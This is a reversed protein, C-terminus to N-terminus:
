IGGRPRQSFWGKQKTRLRALLSLVNNMWRVPLPDDELYYIDAEISAGLEACKEVVSPSFYIEPRYNGSFYIVHAVRVKAAALEKKFPILKDLMDELQKGFNKYVEVNVLRFGNDRVYMLSPEGKNWTKDAQVLKDNKLGIKKLLEHPSEEFGTVYVYMYEQIIM